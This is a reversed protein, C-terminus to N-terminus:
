PLAKNHKVIRLQAYLAIGICIIIPIGASRHPLLPDDPLLGLQFDEVWTRSEVMTGFIEDKKITVIERKDKTFLQFDDKWWFASLVIILVISSIQFIRWLYM